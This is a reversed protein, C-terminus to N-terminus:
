WLSPDLGRGARRTSRPRPHSDHGHHRGDRFTLGLRWVAFWLTKLSCTLGGREKLQKLTADPQKRISDTLRRLDDSGLASPPADGRPKPELTGAQRRCQLLHVVFSVSVRFLQAIERLSGEQQDVAAAVRERLDTSYPRM